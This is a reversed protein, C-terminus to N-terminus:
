MGFHPDDINISPFTVFKSLVPHKDVHEVEQFKLPQVYQSPQLGDISGPGGADSALQEGATALSLGSAGLEAAQFRLHDEIFTSVFNFYHRYHCTLQEDRTSKRIQM